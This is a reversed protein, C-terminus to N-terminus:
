FRNSKRLFVVLMAFGIMAIGRFSRDILMITADSMMQALLVGAMALFIWIAIQKLVPWIARFRRSERPLSDWELWLLVIFLIDMVAQPLNEGEVLINFYLVSFLGFVWPYLARYLKKRKGFFALFVGWFLLNWEPLLRKDLVLIVCTGLIGMGSALSIYWSRTEPYLEAIWDSLIDFATVALGSIVGLQIPLAMTPLSHGLIRLFLWSIITASCSIWILVIGRRINHSISVCSSLFCSLSCMFFLIYGSLVLYASRIALSENFFLSLVAYLIGSLLLSMVGCIVCGEDYEDSRDKIM